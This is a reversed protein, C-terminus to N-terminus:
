QKHLMFELVSPTPIITLAHLRRLQGCLGSTRVGDRSSCYGRYTGWWCWAPYLVYISKFIRRHLRCADLLLGDDGPTMEYYDIYINNSTVLHYGFHKASTSGDTCYNHYRSAGTGVPWVTFEPKQQSIKLRSLSFTRLLRGSIQRSCVQSSWWRLASDWVVTM